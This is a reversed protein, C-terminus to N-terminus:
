RPLMTDDHGPDKHMPITKHLNRNIPAPCPNCSPCDGHSCSKQPWSETWLLGSLKWRGWTDKHARASAMLLRHHQRLVWEGQLHDSVEEGERQHFESIRTNGCHRIGVAM